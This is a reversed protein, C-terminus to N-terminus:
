EKIYERAMKRLNQLDTASETLLRKITDKEKSAHARIWPILIKKDHWNGILESSEVFFSDIESKKKKVSTLYIIEKILKRLSHLEKQMIGGSLLNTLEKIKKNLYLSYTRANIRFIKKLVIKKENRVRKLDKPVVKLFQQLAPDSSRFFPTHIQTYQELLEKRVGIDRIKGTERFITRFPIFHKHDRFEKDNFHILRLLAKIKKIELRIQHLEEKEKGAPFAKLLVRLRKFRKKTYQDLAKM